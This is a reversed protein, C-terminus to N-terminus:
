TMEMVAEDLTRIWAQQADKWSSAWGHPTYSDSRKTPAFLYPSRTNERVLSRAVVVRLRKSNERVKLAEFQGKKRKASLVTIGESTPGAKLFPRAKM